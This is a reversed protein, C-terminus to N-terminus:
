NKIIIKSININILNELDSISINKLEPIRKKILNTQRLLINYLQSKNNETENFYKYYNEDNNYVSILLKEWKHFLRSNNFKKMSFRADRALNKKYKKISLIKISEKALTEPSDDYIIITGKKALAIYDLGLIITPIGHIKTESLVLPYCESISTLFNLSAYKFYISPDSSYNVFKINNNLDLSDIYNQLHEVGIIKSIILLKADAIKNRIYEISEIGIEFRKLKSRGRGILLINNKSLDSPIISNYDYTLFNEFLVSKIGWKKFLYDHELPILSVIYKSNKYENYIKLVKYFKAYFWYFFSSHIYFITKVNQLNNLVKIEKQNPFQYIFIDIKNKYINRILLYTDKPNKIIVRKINTSIEYENEEKEKQTFLYIKFIQRTDLYNILKSTIRQM